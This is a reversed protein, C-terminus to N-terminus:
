SKTWAPQFHYNWIEYHSSHLTVTVVNVWSGKLSKSNNKTGIPFGYSKICIVYSNVLLFQSKGWTHSCSYSEALTSHSSPIPHCIGTVYFYIFESLPHQTKHSISLLNTYKQYRLLGLFLLLTTPPYHMREHFQQFFRHHSKPAKCFSSFSLFMGKQYSIWWSVWLM